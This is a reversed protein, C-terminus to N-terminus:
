DDDAALSYSVTPIAPSLSPKFSSDMDTKQHLSLLNKECATKFQTSNQM